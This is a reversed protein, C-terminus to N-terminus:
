CIFTIILIPGKLLEEISNLRLPGSKYINEFATRLLKPYFEINGIVGLRGLGRKLALYIIIIM